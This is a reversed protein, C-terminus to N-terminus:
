QAPGQMLYDVEVPAGPDRWLSQARHWQAGEEAMKANNDAVRQKGTAIPLPLGTAGVLASMHESAAWRSLGLLNGVHAASPCEGTEEMHRKVAAFVRLRTAKGKPTLASM